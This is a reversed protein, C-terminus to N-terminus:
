AIGRSWDPACPSYLCCRPHTACLRAASSTDLVHLYETGNGDRCNRQGECPLGGLTEINYTYSTDDDPIPVVWPLSVVKRVAARFRMAVQTQLAASGNNRILVDTYFAFDEHALRVTSEIQMGAGGVLKVGGRRAAHTPCWQSSDLVTTRWAEDQSDLVTVGARVFGVFPFQDFSSLGLVSDNYGSATSSCAASGRANTLMPPNGETANRPQWNGCLSGLAPPAAATACRCCAAAAWCCGVAAAWGVSRRVSGRMSGMSGVPRTWRSSREVTAGTREFM